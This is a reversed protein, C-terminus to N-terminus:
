VREGACVVGGMVGEGRCVGCWGDCGRGQVCWVM